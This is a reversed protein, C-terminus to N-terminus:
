KVVGFRSFPYYRLVAHGDVKDKSIEGFVRSDTSKRFERNDGMVFLKGEGVKWHDIKNEIQTEIGDEIYYEDLKTGNVYVDGDSIRVEDGEVGIVRKIYDDEPNIPSEFVVIDGRDPDVFLLPLKLSILRDNTDLTPYMSTGEVMTTSFIFTKIFFALIVAFVIAMLWGTLEGFFTKEPKEDSVKKRNM